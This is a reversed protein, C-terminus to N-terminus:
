VAEKKTSRKVARPVAAIRNLLRRSQRHGNLVDSLYQYSVDLHRGLSRYSWGLRKLKRKERELDFM